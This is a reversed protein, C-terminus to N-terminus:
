AGPRPPAPGLAPDADAGAPQGALASSGTHEQSAHGRAHPRERCRGCLLAGTSGSDSGSGHPGGVRPRGPEDEIEPWFPVTRISAHEHLAGISVNAHAESMAGECWTFCQLAARESADAKWSSPRISCPHGPRNWVHEGAFVNCRYPRSTASDGLGVAQLSTVDVTKSNANDALPDRLQLKGVRMWYAYLESATPYPRHHAFTPVCNKFDNTAAGLGSRQIRRWTSDLPADFDVVEQHLLGNDNAAAAFVVSKVGLLCALATIMGDWTAWRLTNRANSWYPGTGCAGYLWHLAYAGPEGNPGRLLLRKVIERPELRSKRALSLWPSKNYAKLLVSKFGGSTTCPGNKLGAAFIAAVVIEANTSNPFRELLVSLQPRLSLRRGFEYVRSSERRAPPLPGERRELEQLMEIIASTKHLSVFPTRLRLFLGTGKWINGWLGPSRMDADWAPGNFHEIEVFDGDRLAMLGSLRGRRGGLEGLPRDMGDSLPLPMVRASPRLDRQLKGDAGVLLPSSGNSFGIPWWVYRLLAMPNSWTPQPGFRSGLVSHLGSPSRIPERHVTVPSRWRVFDGFSTWCTKGTPSRVTTHADYWVGAPLFPLPPAPGGVGYIPSIPAFRAPPQTTTGRQQNADYYYDLSEYLSLVREASARGISRKGAPYVACLYRRVAEVVSADRHLESRAAPQGAILALLALL